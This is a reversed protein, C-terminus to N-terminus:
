QSANSSKWTDPKLSEQLLDIAIGIVDSDYLGESNITQNLVNGRAYNLMEFFRDLPIIQPQKDGERM